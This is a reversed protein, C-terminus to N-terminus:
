INRYGVQEYALDNEPIAKEEIDLENLISRLTKLEERQQTQGPNSLLQMLLHGM